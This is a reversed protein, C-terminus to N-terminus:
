PKVEESEVKNISKDFFYGIELLKNTKDIMKKLAYKTQLIDQEKRIIEEYKEEVLCLCHKVRNISESNLPEDGSIDKELDFLRRIEDLTFGLSKLKLIASSKELDEATYRRRNNIKEPTVLGLKDYYRLTDITIGTERSFEGIEM